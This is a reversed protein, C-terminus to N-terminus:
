TRDRGAVFRELRREQPSVPLGEGKVSPEEPTLQQLGRLLAEETMTDIAADISPDDRGLMPRLAEPLVPAAVLEPEDIEVNKQISNILMERMDGPSITKEAIERLAVVSDKDNEREITIAGGTALARARHAAVLVLEFRNAIKDVCDEVTVRAM